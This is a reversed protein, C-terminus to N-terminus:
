MKWTPLFLLSTVLAMSSVQAVNSVSHKGLHLGTHLNCVQLSSDLVVVMVLLIYAIHENSAIHCITLTCFNLHAQMRLALTSNQVHTLQTPAKLQCEVPDRFTVM